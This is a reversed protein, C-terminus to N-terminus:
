VELFLLIIHMQMHFFPNFLVIIQIIPPMIEPDKYRTDKVLKIDKEARSLKLKLEREVMNFAVNSLYPRFTNAQEGSFGM